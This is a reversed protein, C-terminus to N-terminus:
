WCFRHHHRWGCGHRHYWHHRGCDHYHCYNNVRAYGDVWIADANTVFATACIGGIALAALVTKLKMSAGLISMSLIGPNLGSPSEALAM